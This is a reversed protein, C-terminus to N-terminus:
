GLGDSRRVTSMIEVPARIHVEIRGKNRVNTNMICESFIRQSQGVLNRRSEQSKTCSKRQCFCIKERCFGRTTGSLDNQHAHRGHGQPLLTM